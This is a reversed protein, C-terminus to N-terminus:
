AQTLGTEYAAALFAAFCELAAQTAEGLRQDSYLFRDLVAVLSPWPSQGAPPKLFQSPMASSVQRVLIQAGLRSGELVYAAGLTAAETPFASFEASEPLDVGLMSLDSRLLECRRHASWGEVLYSLGSQELARELGPVVKAQILLFARYDDPRSLDLRSLQADLRDHAAQTARKLAFRAKM